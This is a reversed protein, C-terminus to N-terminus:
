LALMLLARAEKVVQSSLRELSTLYVVSLLLFLLTYLVSLFAMFLLAQFKVLFLQNHALHTLM